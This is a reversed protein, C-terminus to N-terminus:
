IMKLMLEEIKKATNGWNYRGANKLAGVKMRERIRTDKLLMIIGEKLAILDNKPILLACENNLTDLGLDYCIVPVGHANAEIWTIGFGESVSPSVFLWSRQYWEHKEEETIFGLFTVPLDKAKDKLGVFDPGEGAVVLEVDPIIERVEKFVDIVHDIKKRATNLAGVYFLLPTESQPINKEIHTFGPNIVHIPKRPKILRKNLDSATLESAAVWTINKYKYPEILQESIFGVAGKVLGQLKFFNKKQLHHRIAILPVNKVISPTFLAFSMVNEIVFNYNQYNQAIAQRLAKLSDFRKVEVGEVIEHEPLAAGNLKEPGCYVITDHGLLQLEFAVKHIYEQAGGKREKNTAGRLSVFLIKM